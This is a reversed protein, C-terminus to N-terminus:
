LKLKSGSALLRGSASENKIIGENLHCFGIQLWDFDTLVILDEFVLVSALRQCLGRPTLSRGM